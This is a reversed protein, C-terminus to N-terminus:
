KEQCYVDANVARGQAVTVPNEALCATTGDNFQASSGKLTYVGGAVQLSFRGSPGVTASYSVHHGEATVKGALPRPSGPAPGGIALLSGSLTGTAEPVVTTGEPPALESRASSQGGAPVVTTSGGQVPFGHEGGEHPVGSSCATALVLVSMALIGLPAITRNWHSSTVGDEVGCGWM